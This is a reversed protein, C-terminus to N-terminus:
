RNGRRARRAAALVGGMGLLLVGALLGATAIEGGTTALSSGPNGPTVPTGPTTPTTPPTPTAPVPPPPVVAVPNQVSVTVTEEGVTFREPSIVPAGWATGAVAEPARERVTVEAGAPLAPSTASSGAELTLVGSGAPFGPGAPYSYELMYRTGTPIRETAAAPGTLTKLATFRGVRTGNGTGSGGHRTVESTVTSSTETGVRIEAANRYTGAAGDDTVRSLYHVNYFAGERATFTVTTGDASVTYDAAAVETAPGPVVLGSPLTQLGTAVWLSPYREGAASERLLEQDPGIVDTVVVEQGAVMGKAGAGVAVDWAITDSTNQYEGSKFDARGRFDCDTTCIFPDPKVDVSATVDGFDYTVTTTESVETTVTAWFSFGGSLGVPHEELYASDIDCVLQTATTVCHGAEAGAADLLPFTDPLGRLGEPLEVVFGAPAVPNDPLSWTGTLEAKTGSAVATETFTLSEVTAGTAYPPAATAAVPALLAGIFGGVIVAVAAVRRAVRSRGSRPRVPPSHTLM